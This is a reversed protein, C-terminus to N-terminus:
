HLDMLECLPSMTHQLTNTNRVTLTSGDTRTGAVERGEADVCWCEQGRGSCQVPRFRGDETCHPADGQQKAVAAGRLSECRSLTESELQYESAKGHLLLLPCCVLICAICLLWAM